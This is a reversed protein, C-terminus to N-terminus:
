VTSLTFTSMPTESAFLVALLGREINFCDSETETLSKSYFKIRKRDQLMVAGLSKQSIDPEIAVPKSPDFSHSSHLM